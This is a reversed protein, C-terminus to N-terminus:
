NVTLSGGNFNSDWGHMCSNFGQYITDVADIQEQLDALWEPEWDSAIAVEMNALLEGHYIHLAELSALFAEKNVMLNPSTKNKEDM